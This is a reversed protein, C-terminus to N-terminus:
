EIVKNGIKARITMRDVRFGGGPRQSGRGIGCLWRDRHKRCDIGVVRCDDMGRIRMWGKLEFRFLRM